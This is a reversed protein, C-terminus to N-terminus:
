TAHAANMWTSAYQATTSRDLAQSPMATLKIWLTHWTGDWFEWVLTYWSLPVCACIYDQQNDQMDETHPPKNSGVRSHLTAPCPGSEGNTPTRCENREKAWGPPAYGRNCTCIFSGKQALIVFLYHTFVYMICQVVNVKLLNILRNTRCMCVFFFVTQM